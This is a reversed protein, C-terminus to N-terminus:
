KRNKAFSIQKIFVKEKKKRPLELEIAVRLSDQIIWEYTQVYFGYSKVKPNKNIKKKLDKIRDNFTLDFPLKGLFVAPKNIMKEDKNFCFIAVIEGDNKTRLRFGDQEYHYEKRLKGYDKIKYDGLNITYQKVAESNINLGIFEFLTLTKNKATIEVQKSSNCSFLVLVVLLLIKKM